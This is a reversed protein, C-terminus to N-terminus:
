SANACNWQYEKNHCPTYVTWYPGKGGEGRATFNGPTIKRSLLVTAARAVGTVWQRESPTVGTIVSSMGIDCDIM